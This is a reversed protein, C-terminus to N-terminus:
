REDHSESAAKLLRCNIRAFASIPLDRTLVRLRRRRVLPLTQSFQSLTPNIGYVSKRTEDFIRATTKERQRHTPPHENSVHVRPM